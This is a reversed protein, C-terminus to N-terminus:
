SVGHELEEANIRWLRGLEDFNVKGRVYLKRAGFRIQDGNSVQPDSVFYIKHTAQMGSQKFKAVEMLSMPQIRCSMPRGTAAYTLTTGGSAGTTDTQAHITITHESCLSELSM